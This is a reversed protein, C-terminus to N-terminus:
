IEKNLINESQQIQNEFFKRLKINDNKRKPVGPMMDDLSIQPGLKFKDLAKADLSRKNIDSEVVNMAIDRIDTDAM